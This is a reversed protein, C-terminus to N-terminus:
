LKSIGSLGRKMEEVSYYVPINLEKARAIESQVGKSTEIRRPIVLVCDSVELWAMSYDHFKKVTLSGRDSENMQLVFQHDFWPCFPAYGMLFLDKCLQIGRAINDLVGLVNDDSYKGAVYVKIM